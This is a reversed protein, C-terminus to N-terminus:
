IDFNTLIFFTALYCLTTGIVMIIHFTTHMYLKKRGYFFFGLLCTFGGIIYFLKVPLSMLSKNIFYAGVFLGSIALEIINEVKFYREGVVICLVYNLMIVGSSLGLVVWNYIHDQLGLLMGIASSLIIFAVNAHDVRRWKAKIELKDIAHYISSITYVVFPGIFAIFATAYKIPGKIFTMLVIFGVLAIIAGLVHSITNAKEENPTYYRLGYSAYLQIM